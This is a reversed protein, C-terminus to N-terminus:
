PTKLVIGLGWSNSYNYYDILDSNYGTRGWLQIPLGLVDATFEVTTTNNDFMASYGTEQTLEIKSFCVFSDGLFCRSRNFHYQMNLSVGDFQRRPRLQSSADEWLNYEESRGQLPGKHLYHSLHLQTSFKSSWDRRWEFFSYDWGRSLGDRAFDASEGRALYDQQERTFSAPSNIRQGNSEHAFGIDMWADRSSWLRYFLAPNFRRAIVPSSDRTGIYQSFRGTFAIYPQMLYEDDGPILLELLDATKEQARLLQSANALLPHKSSLVFDLYLANDIDDSDSRIMLKTPEYSSLQTHSTLVEQRIRNSGIEENGSEKNGLATNDVTATAIIALAPLLVDQPCNFYERWENDNKAYIVMNRTRMVDAAVNIHLETDNHPLILLRYDIRPAQRLLRTECDNLDLNALRAVIYQRDLDSLQPQQNAADVLQVQTQPVLTKATLTQPAPTQAFLPLSSLLTVLTMGSLRLSRLLLTRPLPPM